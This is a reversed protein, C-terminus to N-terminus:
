QPEARSAAYIRATCGEDENYRATHCISIAPLTAGSWGKQDVSSPWCHSAERGFPRLGSVVTSIQAWGLVPLSVGVPLSADSKGGSISAANKRARRDNTSAIVERRTAIVGLVAALNKPSWVSLPKPSRMAGLQQHSPGRLHIIGHDACHASSHTRLIHPPFSMTFSTSSTM